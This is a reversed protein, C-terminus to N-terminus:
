RQYRLALSSPPIDSIWRGAVPFVPILDAQSVEKLRQIRAQLYIYKKQRLRNASRTKSVSKDRM